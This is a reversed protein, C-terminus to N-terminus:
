CHSLIFLPLSWFQTLKIYPLTPHVSSPHLSINHSVSVCSHPPTLIPLLSLCCTLELYLLTTSPCLSLTCSLFMAICLSCHLLLTFFSMLRHLFSPILIYSSHLSSYHFPLSSLHTLSVVNYFFLQHGIFAIKSPEVYAMSYPINIFVNIFSSLVATITIFVYVNLKGGHCAKLPLTGKSVGEKFNGKTFVFYCKQWNM